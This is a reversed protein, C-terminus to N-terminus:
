GVERKNKRIEAVLIDIKLFKSKKKNNEEFFWFFFVQAHFLRWIINSLMEKSIERVNKSGNEFSYVCFAVAIKHFQNYVVAIISLDFGRNFFYSSILNTPSPIFFINIMDYKFSEVLLILSM